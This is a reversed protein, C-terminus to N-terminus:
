PNVICSIARTSLRRPSVVGAPCLHPPEETLCSRRTQPSIGSVLAIGRDIRLDFYGRSDRRRCLWIVGAPARVALLYEQKLECGYFRRPDRVSLGTKPSKGGLRSYDAVSNVNFWADAM